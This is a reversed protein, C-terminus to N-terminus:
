APPGPAMGASIRPRRPATPLARGGRRPPRGPGTAAPSAYGAAIRRRRLEAPRAATPPARRRRNGARCRHGPSAPRGPQDGLRVAPVRVARGSASKASRRRCFRRILAPQVTRREGPWSVRWGSRCGWFRGGLWRWGSGAGRRSGDLNILCTQTVTSGASWVEHDVLCPAPTPHPHLLISPTRTRKTPPPPRSCASASPNAPSGATAASIAAGPLGPIASTASSRCTSGSRDPRPPPAPRPPRRGVQHHDPRLRRQDGPDGVRYAGLADGHEARGRSAAWSSPEFVNALSTIVAAPTGVARAYVQVSASLVARASSSNPAGYTTFFSPSAAPLPTTTVSSRAAASACAAPTRGPRSRPTGRGAGLDRRKTTVSPSAASGSSGACSKLRIPSPSVPGFVPPM